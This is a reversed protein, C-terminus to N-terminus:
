TQRERLLCDKTGSWSLAFIEEGPGRNGTRKRGKRRRREEEGGRREKEDKWRRDKDRIEQGKDGRSM